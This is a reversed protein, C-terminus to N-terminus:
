AGGDIEFAQCITVGGTGTVTCCTWHQALQSCMANAGCQMVPEGADAREELPGTEYGCLTGENARVGAEGDTDAEVDSGTAADRSGILNVDATAGELPIQADPARADAGSVTESGGCACLIAGPLRLGYELLLRCARM